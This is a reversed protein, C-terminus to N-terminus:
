ARPDMAARCCIAATRTSRSTSTGATASATPTILPAFSARLGNRAHPRASRRARSCSTTPRMSRIRPMSRCSSSRGPTSPTSRGSASGTTTSTPSCSSLPVRERRADREPQLRARPACRRARRLGPRHVVGARTRGQVRLRPRERARGAARACGPLLAGLPARRCGSSAPLGPSPPSALSSSSASPCPRSASTARRPISARSAGTSTTRRISCPSCSRSAWAASSQRPSSTSPASRSRQIGNSDCWAVTLARVGKAKLEAALAALDTSM